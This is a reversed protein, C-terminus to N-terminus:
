NYSIETKDTRLQVFTPFQLSELGTDKDYSIEKYKVECLINALSERVEWLEEREEDTFGTGVSVENGRFDVVLAGLTGSLRGSGEKYGVIPLDMTYFRKVKLIGAHRTRRYPVDINVILGEKDESVMRELLEPIKSQDEGDYLVPLVSACEPSDTKFADLIKRRKSYVTEPCDSEFDSLPVADFITYCIEPKKEARSNIIGSAARFAENDSLGNKDRLTLEGDLVINNEDAWKLASIIHELGSYAAGSRAILRGKYYTARTGNLKQTLWFREGDPLPCNELSYARQIKWRNQM